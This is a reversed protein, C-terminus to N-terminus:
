DDKNWHRHRFAFIRVAVVTCDVTITLFWGRIGAQFGLSWKWFRFIFWVSLSKKWRESAVQSPWVLGVLSNKFELKWITLRNFFAFTWDNGSENLNNHRHRNRCPRRRVLRCSISPRCHVRAIHNDPCTEPINLNKMLERYNKITHMKSMPLTQSYLRRLYKSINRM